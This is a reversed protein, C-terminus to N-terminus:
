AGPDELDTTIVVESELTRHVPCKDAIELLRARQADDLEGELSLRRTIRDLRGSKTECEACDEAHIKDHALNVTVRSLPWAKRDAYLRLTISTCAGLGALLLDYPGPGSDNGGFSAPEDARLQHPGAAIRQAFKGEGAEQVVVSGPKAKLPEREKRDLYRGAWAALVEAVYAADEHRSLLHDADDLSVFSKPHKAATFIRAANDIGVTADRPAHFVLLAKRLGAIAAELRTAAIDDLFQKKITFTRGALKVEAEGKAEIEPRADQFLHQVHAPEAPAGITAV